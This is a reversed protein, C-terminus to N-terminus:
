WISRSRTMEHRTVDEVMEAEELAALYDVSFSPTIEQIAVNEHDLIGIDDLDFELQKPAFRVQKVEPEPKVEPVIPPLVVPKVEPPVVPNSESLLEGFMEHEDDFSLVNLPVPSPRREDEEPLAIKSTIGVDVYRSFFCAMAADGAYRVTWQRLAAPENALSPLCALVCERAKAKVRVTPYGILQFCGNISSKCRGIFHKLHRTNVAIFPGAFSAGAAISREEVGHPSRDIFALVSALELPFQVLRKDKQASNQSLHLESRVRGFEDQDARTLAAWAAQSSFWPPTQCYFM